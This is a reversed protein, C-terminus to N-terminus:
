KARTLARPRLSGFYIETFFCCSHCQRPLSFVLSGSLHQFVLVGGGGGGGLEM